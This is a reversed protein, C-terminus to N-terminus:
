SHTLRQIFERMQPDPTTGLERLLLEELMRYQRLADNKRGLEAYLRIVEHNIDERVADMKLIECFYYLGKQLLNQQVHFRAATELLEIYDQEIQRSQDSAWEYAKGKLLEGTYLAEAREFLQSSKETTQRIQKVLQEFEYLDCYVSNEEIRIDHKGVILCNRLQSASLAKRIYYLTSNLNKWANEPKLDGWLTDIIEERSVTGKCVLFAFLEETKPSRLKVAETDSDRLYIKLGNFLRVEISPKAVTKQHKKRLKDLTKAIRHVTVPKLLYDLANLEFAQVAYEDYGTVFVVDISDDSDLLLSSFRIGNIEPMSIDLFAVDIPNAKVYEYAELPNLFTQCIEIEGSETLIKGLRKVSLEEDDVIIARLM